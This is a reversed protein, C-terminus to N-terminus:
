SPKEIKESVTDWVKTDGNMNQEEKKELLGIRRDSTLRREKAFATGEMM